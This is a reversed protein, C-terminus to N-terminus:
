SPESWARGETVTTKGTRRTAPVSSTAAYLGRDGVPDLGVAMAEGSHDPEGNEDFSEEV